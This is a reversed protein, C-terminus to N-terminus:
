FFGMQNNKFTVQKDISMQQLQIYGLMNFITRSDRSHELREPDFGNARIVREMETREMETVNTFHKRDMKVAPSRASILFQGTYPSYVWGMAAYQVWSSSDVSYWPYKLMLEPSTMGFGHVRIRAEGKDNTLYEHWIRDLWIHLQSNSIPVMGGLTIHDYNEIYHELYEEPEGYHFCPLPYIGRKEMEEQNKLTLAPDGIGDLVSCVEVFGENKHLWDCYAGIDIEVGTTYASFAGSDIFYKREEKIMRDTIIPKHVYHYSALRNPASDVISQEHEDLVLWERTNKVYHTSGLSAFYVRM